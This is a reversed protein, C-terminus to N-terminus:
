QRNVKSGFSGADCRGHPCYPRFGSFAKRRISLGRASVWSGFRRMRKITQAMGRVPEGERWEHVADPPAGLKRGALARARWSAKRGGPPCSARHTWGVEAVQVIQTYGYRARERSAGRNEGRPRGV